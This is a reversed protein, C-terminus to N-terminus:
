RQRFSLVFYWRLSESCLKPATDEWHLVHGSCPIELGPVYWHQGAARTPVRTVPLSCLNGRCVWKWAAGTVRQEWLVKFVSCNGRLPFERLQEKSGSNSSLHLHPSGPWVRERRGTGTLVLQREGCNKSYNRMLTRVAAGSPYTPTVLLSCGCTNQRDLQYRIVIQLSGMITKM